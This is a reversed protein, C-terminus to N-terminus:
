WNISNAYYVFIKSSECAIKNDSFQLINSLEEM